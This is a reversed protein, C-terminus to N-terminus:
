KPNNDIDLNNINNIDDNIYEQKNVDQILENNQCPCIIRTDNKEFFIKSIIIGSFISIIISVICIIIDRRFSSKVDFDSIKITLINIVASLRDLWSKAQRDIAEATYPQPANENDKQYELVTNPNIKSIEYQIEYLKKFNTEFNDLKQKLYKKPLNDNDFYEKINPKIIKVALDYYRQALKNNEPNTTTNKNKGTM